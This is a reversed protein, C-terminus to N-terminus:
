GAQSIKPIEKRITLNYPEGHDIFTIVACLPDNEVDMRVTVPGTEPGYAYRTINSFLEDIAVDLQIRILKPCGLKTLQANVFDTVPKVQDSAASVTLERM